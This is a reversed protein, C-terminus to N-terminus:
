AEFWQLQRYYDHIDSNTGRYGDLAHQLIEAMAYIDDQQDAAVWHEHTQGGATLVALIMPEHGRDRREITATAGNGQFEIRKIRM